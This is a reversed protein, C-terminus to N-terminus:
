EVGMYRLVMPEYIDFQHTKGSKRVRGIPPDFKGDIMGNRVSKVDLGLMEAAEQATLKKISTRVAKVKGM